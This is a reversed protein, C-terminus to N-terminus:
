LHNGIGQEFKHEETSSTMLNLNDFDEFYEDHSNEEYITSLTNEDDSEDVIMTDSSTDESFNHEEINEGALLGELPADKEQPQDTTKDRNEFFQASLSRRKSQKPIQDASNSSAANEGNKQTESTSKIEEEVKEDEYLPNSQHEQPDEINSPNCSTNEEHNQEMVTVPETGLNASPELQESEKSNKSDFARITVPTPCNRDKSGSVTEEVLKEDSSEPGPANPLDKPVESDSVINASSPQEDSCTSSSFNKLPDEGSKESLNKEEDIKEDFDQTNKGKDSNNETEVSCIVDQGFVVDDDFINEVKRLQKKLENSYFAELKGSSDTIQDFLSEEESNVTEQDLGKNQGFIVSDINESRMQEMFAPMQGISNHNEEQLGEIPENQSELIFIAAIINEIISSIELDRVFDSFPHNSQILPMNLNEEQNPTEQDDFEETSNLNATSAESYSQDSEQEDEDNDHASPYESKNSSNKESRSSDSAQDTFNNSKANSPPVSEKGPTEESNENKQETKENNKAKYFGFVGLIAIIVVTSSIAAITLKTKNM